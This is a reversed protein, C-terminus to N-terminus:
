RSAELATPKGGSTLIKDFGLDILKEVADFPKVCADIARHFTFKLGEGAEMLAKVIEVDLEGKDNLAGIVVGEYGMDKVKRIDNCMTEVEANNYVYNGERCRILVRM